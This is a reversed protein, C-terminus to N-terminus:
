ANRNKEFEELKKEISLLRFGLLLLGCFMVYGTMNTISLGISFSVFASSHVSSCVGTADPNGKLSEYCLEHSETSFDYYTRAQYYQAVVSVLLLLVLGGILVVPSKRM